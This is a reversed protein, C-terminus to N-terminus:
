DMFNENGNKSEYIGTEFWSKTEFKKKTRQVKKLFKIKRLFFSCAKKNVNGGRKKREKEEEKKRRKRRKRNKRNKKLSFHVSKRKLELPLKKPTELEVSTKGKNL